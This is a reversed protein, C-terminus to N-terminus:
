SFFPISSFLACIMAGSNTPYELMMHDIDIQDLSLRSCIDFLIAKLNSQFFKGQIWHGKKWCDGDAWVDIKDPFYPYPMADWAWVFKYGIM